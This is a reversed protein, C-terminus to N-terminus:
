PQRVRQAHLDGQLIRNGGGKDYLSQKAASIKYKPPSKEVTGAGMGERGCRGLAGRPGRKRRTRRAIAMRVPALHCKVPTQVQVNRHSASCGKGCGQRDEKPLTRESGEGATYSPHREGM